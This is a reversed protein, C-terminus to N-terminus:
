EMAKCKFFKPRLKVDSGARMLARRDIDLTFESFRLARHTNYSEAM